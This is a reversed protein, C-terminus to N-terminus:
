RYARYILFPLRFLCTTSFVSISSFLFWFVLWSHSAGGVVGPIIILPSLGYLDGLIMELQGNSAECFSSTQIDQVLVPKANM